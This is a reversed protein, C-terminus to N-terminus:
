GRVEVLESDCQSGLTVGVLCVFFILNAICIYVQAIETFSKHKATAKRLNLTKNKGEPLCQVPYLKENTQGFQWWSISQGM